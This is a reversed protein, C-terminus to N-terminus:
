VRMIGRLQGQAAAQRRPGLTDVMGDSVCGPAIRPASERTGGSHRAAPRPLENVLFVNPLAALISALREAKTREAVM